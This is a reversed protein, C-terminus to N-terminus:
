RWIGEIPDSNQDIRGLSPLGFIVELTKLLNFHDYFEESRSGPVVGAGLFVTAFHNASSRGLGGEDFTVVFLTTELLSPEDLIPQFFQSLWGDAFAISTDHGDNNLDPTYLSFDPLSRGKLDSQFEAGEVIRRCREPDNQINSFSLFPVHKRVYAGRSPELFCDGPFGEAYNKWTKGAAELLDGLHTRDLSLNDNTLPPLEGSVLAIYNPQSPRAIGWYHTLLAGKRILQSFFPQHVTDDYDTNELVVVVV